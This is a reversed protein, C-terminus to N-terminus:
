KTAKNPKIWVPAYVVGGEDEEDEENPQPDRNLQSGKTAPNKKQASSYTVEEKNLMEEDAVHSVQSSFQPKTRTKEGSEGMNEEPAKVKRRRNHIVAVSVFVGVRVIVLVIVGILGFNLNTVTSNQPYSYSCPISVSFGRVACILKDPYEVSWGRDQTLFGSLVLLILASHLTKM